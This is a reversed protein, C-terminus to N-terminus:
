RRVIESVVVLDSKTLVSIVHMHGCRCLKGTGFGMSRENIKYNCASLNIQVHVNQLYEMAYPVYTNLNLINAAPFLCTSGECMLCM